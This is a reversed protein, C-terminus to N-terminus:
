QEGFVKKLIDNVRHSIDNRIKFEEDSVKLFLGDLAKQTTHEALTNTEIKKFLVGNLSAQNYTNILSAYASEASVNGVLKKNLSVGIKPAFAAILQTETNSKLYTTAADDNGNLISFGDEISINTIADIFIPKAEIAADEAARNISKVAEDVLLDLGPVKSINDVLNSAEPPLFIKVAEDGFYGDTANLTKVSTDSGVTLASKLGQVVEENSLGAVVKDLEECSHNFLAVLPLFLLILTKKM